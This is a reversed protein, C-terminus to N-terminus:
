QLRGGDKAAVRGELICQLCVLRDSDWQQMSHGCPQRYGLERIRILAPPAPNLYLHKRFQKPKEEM